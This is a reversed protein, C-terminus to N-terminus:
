SKTEERCGQGGANTKKNSGPPRRTCSSRRPSWGAQQRLSGTQTSRHFLVSFDPFRISM